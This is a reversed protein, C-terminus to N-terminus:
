AIIREIAEREKVEDVWGCLADRVAEKFYGDCDIFGWCADEYETELNTIRIGYVQGSLWANMEEVEKELYKFLRGIRKKTIRKWGYVELIKGRGLYAFGMCGADWGDNFPYVAQSSSIVDGGHRYLYLPYILNEKHFNKEIRGEDDMFNDSTGHLRRGDM